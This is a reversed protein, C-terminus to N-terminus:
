EGTIGFRSMIRLAGAVRSAKLATIYTSFEDSPILHLTQRMLSTKVLTRSKWLASEIDARRIGRNRVWIQLYAAPMLQAQVGCVDRCIAVADDPTTDRLHHRRLRFGM